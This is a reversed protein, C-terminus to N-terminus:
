MMGHPFVSPMPEWRTVAGYSTKSKEVFYWYDDLQFYRFFFMPHDICTDLVLAEHVLKYPLHKAISDERVDVLTDEYNKNPETVHYYYAGALHM